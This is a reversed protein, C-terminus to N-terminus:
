EDAADSTYLLCPKYAEHVILGQQVLRKLAESVTSAKQGLVEGIRTSTVPGANWEGLDYIVKLYDQTRDPLDSVHM